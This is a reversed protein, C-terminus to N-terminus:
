GTLEKMVRRFHDAHLQWDERKLDGRAVGHKALAMDADFSKQAEATAIPLKAHARRGNVIRNFM